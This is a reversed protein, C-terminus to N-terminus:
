FELGQWKPWSYVPTAEVWGGDMTRVFTRGGSVASDIMTVYRSGGDPITRLITGGSLADDLSAYVPTEAGTIRAVRVPLDSLSADPKAAALPRIPYPFGSDHLRAITQSAGLPLCDGPDTPYYGPQCLPLDYYPVHPVPPEAAQTAVPSAAMLIAIGALLLLRPLLGDLQEVDRMFCHLLESGHYAGVQRPALPLLRALLWVRVRALLRFTAEHTLVRESWRGVTRSLALGRIGAGPYFFNFALATAPTLGALAAASIFGGSLALLALTSALTLLGLVLSAAYWRRLGRLQRLYPLIAKLRPQQEQRPEPM